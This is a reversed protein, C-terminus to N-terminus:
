PYRKQSIFSLKKNEWLQKMFEDFDYSDTQFRCPWKYSFDASIVHGSIRPVTFTVIGGANTVTYATPSVIFGNDYIVPAPSPDVYLVPEVFNGWARVFQFATQVGDGTGIVQGIVTKDNIDEFLWSDGAGYVSNFFGLLTQLDALPLYDFSVEWKWRPFTWLSSTYEVGSAATSKLTGGEWSPSKTVLWSIGQLTPFTLSGM